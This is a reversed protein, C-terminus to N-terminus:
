ARAGGEWPASRFERMFLELSEFTGCVFLVDDPEVRLADPLEVLVEGQRELAVVSAGSRERVGAQWPHAGALAGPLVRMCRLRQEM